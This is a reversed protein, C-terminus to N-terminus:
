GRDAEQATTPAPSPLATSTAPGPVAGVTTLSRPMPPVVLDLPPTPFGGESVPLLEDHGWAYQKYGNWAHLFEAKVDAATVPAHGATSPTQAPLVSLALLALFLPTRTM